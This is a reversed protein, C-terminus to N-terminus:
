GSHTWTGDPWRYSHGFRTPLAVQASFPTARRARRRALSGRLWAPLRQGVVTPALIPATTM